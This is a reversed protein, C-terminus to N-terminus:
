YKSIDIGAEKAEKLSVLLESKAKIIEADAKKEAAFGLSGLWLMLAMGFLIAFLIAALQLGDSM